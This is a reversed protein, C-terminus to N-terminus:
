MKYPLKPGKEMGIHSLPLSAELGDVHSGCKELGNLKEVLRDMVSEETILALEDNVKANDEVVNVTLSGKPDLCNGRGNKNLVSSLAMFSVDIELVLEDSTAAKGEGKDLGVEIVKKSSM